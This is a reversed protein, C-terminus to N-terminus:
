LLPTRDPTNWLGKACLWGKLRAEEPHDGIWNHDTRCVALWHRQDRLLTSIRGRAHHIEVAKKVYCCQCVTHIQLFQLRERRYLEMELSRKQSM